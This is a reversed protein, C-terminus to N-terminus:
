ATGSHAPGQKLGLLVAARHAHGRRGKLYGGLLGHVISPPLDHARAWATVNVGNRALEEKVEPATKVEAM